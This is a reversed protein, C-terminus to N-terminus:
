AIFAAAADPWTFTVSWLSAPNTQVRFSLPAYLHLGPLYNTALYATGRSASVTGTETAGPALSAINQWGSALTALSSAFSSPPNTFSWTVDVKTCPSSASTGDPLTGSYTTTGSDNLIWQETASSAWGNFASQSARQATTPADPAGSNNFVVFNSLSGAFYPSVGSVPSWGVHWYGTDSSYGVLLGGGSGATAGDVYITTTSMLGLFLISVASMTVYAFHWTGDNYSTTTTTTAVGTNQIFSLTGNTNMYLIRDNGGTANTSSTGIGFLPGGATGATKFWIGLGYTAGLSIAPNPQAQSVVGAAYGGPNQGDFTIAGSGTMPISTPSFTTGYRPLMPNGSNKGNDLKVVGCSAARVQQTLSSAPITGNNTISDTASVTAPSALTATTPAISGTCPPTTSQGAVSTCSTAQYTHTYSLSGSGATNASNTTSVSFGGLAGSTDSWVVAVAALLVCTAARMLRGHRTSM